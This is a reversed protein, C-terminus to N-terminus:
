LSEIYAEVWNWKNGLEDIMDDMEGADLFESDTYFEEGIHYMFYFEFMCAFDERPNEKGYDRTFVADSDYAWEGDDSLSYGPLYPVAGAPIELWDSLELFQSWFSGEDDWNHGIEHFVIQKVPKTGTFTSDYFEIRGDNFNAARAAGEARVFTLATGDERELFSKDGTFRHLVSLGEDVAEIESETWNTGNGEFEILADSSGDDELTDLSSNYLFRDENEGGWLADNGVGGYVGDDGKGGHLSDDDGDGYLDDDNEEGYIVDNGSGGHILDNGSEGHLSDKGSGGSLTDAGSGGWAKAPISTDNSFTDNGGYGQFEIRNITQTTVGSSPTSGLSYSYEVNGYGNISVSLSDASSGGTFTLVGGSISVASMLRREELSQVVPAAASEILHDAAALTVDRANALKQTRNKQRRLFQPANM